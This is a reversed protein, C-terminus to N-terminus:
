FYWFIGLGYRKITEDVDPQKSGFILFGNDTGEIEHVVKEYSLKFGLRKTLFIYIGLDMEKFRGATTQEYDISDSMSYSLKANDTHGYFYSAKIMFLNNFYVARAGLMAGGNEFERDAKSKSGNISGKFSENAGYFGIGGDLKFIGIKTSLPVGGWLMLKVDLGINNGSEINNYGFVGELSFYYDSLIDFHLFTGTNYTKYTNGDSEITRIQYQPQIEFILYGKKIENNKNKAFVLTTSLFIFLIFILKKM